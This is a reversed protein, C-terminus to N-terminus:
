CGRPPRRKGDVVPVLTPSPRSMTQLRGREGGAPLPVALHTPCSTELGVRVAKVVLIILSRTRFSWDFLGEFLAVGVVDPRSVRLVVHPCLQVWGALKAIQVILPARLAKPRATDDRTSAAADLLRGGFNRASEHSRMTHILHAAPSSSPISSGHLVVCVLNAHKAVRSSHSM